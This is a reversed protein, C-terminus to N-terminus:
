AGGEATAHPEELLKPASVSALYAAFKADADAALTTIDLTASVEVRERYEPLRAKALALTLADSYRRIMFPSGDENLVVRGASVVPELWGNIGRHHIAARVVDQAEQDAVEFRRTFSEDKQWEYFTDRDIGAERCAATVNANRAFTTLFVVQAKEREEKKLRKGQRRV